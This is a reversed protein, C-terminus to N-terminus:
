QRILHDWAADLIRSMTRHHEHFLRRRAQCASRRKEAQAMLASMAAQGVRDREQAPLSMLFRERHEPSLNLYRRVDRHAADLAPASRAPKPPADLPRFLERLCDALLTALDVLLRVAAGHRHKPMATASM